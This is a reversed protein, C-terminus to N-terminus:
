EHCVRANAQIFTFFVQCIAFYVVWQKCRMTLGRSHVPPAPIFRRVLGQFSSPQLHRHSVAFLFRFQAPPHRRHTVEKAPLKKRVNGELSRTHLAATHSKGTKRKNMFLYEYRRIKTFTEKHGDILWISPLKKTNKWQFGRLRARARRM